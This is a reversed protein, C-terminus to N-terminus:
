LAQVESDEGFFRAIWELESVDRISNNSKVSNEVGCVLSVDLSTM